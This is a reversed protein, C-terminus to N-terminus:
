RSTLTLILQYSGCANVLVTGPPGKSHVTCAEAWSQGLHVNGINCSPLAPIMVSVKYGLNWSLWLKLSVCKNERLDVLVQWNKIPFVHDGCFAGQHSGVEGDARLLQAGPGASRMCIHLHFSLPGQCSLTRPPHSAEPNRTQNTPSRPEVEGKRLGIPWWQGIGVRFHFLFNCGRLETTGKRTQM